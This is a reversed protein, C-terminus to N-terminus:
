ANRASHSVTSCFMQWSVSRSCDVFKARASHPSASLPPAARFFLALWSQGRWSLLSRIEGPSSPITPWKGTKRCKGRNETFLYQRCDSTSSRDIKENQRQTATSDPLGGKQLPGGRGMKGAREVNPYKRPSALGRIQTPTIRPKYAVGMKLNMLVKQGQQNQLRDIYGLIVLLNCRTLFTPLPESCTNPVCPLGLYGENYGFEPVPPQTTPSTPTRVEWHGQGVM